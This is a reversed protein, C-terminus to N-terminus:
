RQPKGPDAGAPLLSVDAIWITGNLKNDFMHSPIRYLRLLLFHTEAGTTVDGEVDTWVHSGTFNETLLNTGGTRNPDTFIFRMGSETTIGETRMYAHFHYTRAPEVPIFQSPETLEPNSGGGFDIRISRAGHAPPASDFDIAVGPLPVWRWDLGGNSFEREFDGNWVLSNHMPEGNPLGAAALAERWVRTADHARDERILDDLFPFTRQLPFPRGLALLRQWVALGAAAQRNSAFFDLAQFYADVNAPLVRDLLLDVDHNSRWTRSIALPLLTVDTTVARQIQAFGESFDEQRLLFNGYNWAVEASAPYVKRSREFAERALPINGADEYAGALDMWYHASLPNREVARQYDALAGAPDSNALDFQRRHGLNDWAAANGPELAVGREMVDLRDSHLRHDALWIRGAQFTLLTAVVLSVLVLARRQNGNELPIQM